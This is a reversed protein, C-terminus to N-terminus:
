DNSDGRTALALCAGNYTNIMYPKVSQPNRHGTVQMIGVLDAGGEMMESVATRRLDMATLQYPLNAKSLIENIIPAIETQAYPRHAGARPYVHPAVYPQFDFDDKQCKLVQLLGPSIPLHVDANRKSQTIDVRSEEFNISDWKLVRMDGVRQAWDYAMHVILGVSRWRYENHATDLFQRVQDRTWKIKRPNEPETKISKVPDTIMVDYRLAYKWACSVVSKRYNATRVGRELWQDYAQQMHMAKIRSVKYKGLPKGDVVTTCAAALHVEYGRQTTHKLKCFSKSTLYFDVIENLIATKKPVIRVMKEKIELLGLM